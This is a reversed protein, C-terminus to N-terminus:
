RHFYALYVTHVIAASLGSGIMTSLIIAGMRRPTSIPDRSQLLRLTNDVCTRLLSESAAQREEVKRLRVALEAIGRTSTSEDEDPSDPTMLSPLSDGNTASM